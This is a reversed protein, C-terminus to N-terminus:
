DEITIIGTSEPKLIGGAINAKTSNNIGWKIYLVCDENFKQTTFTGEGSVVSYGKNANKSKDLGILDTLCNDDDDPHGTTKFPRKSIWVVYNKSKDSFELNYELKEDKNIKILPFGAQVGLYRNGDKDTLIARDSYGTENGHKEYEFDAVSGTNGDYIQKWNTLYTREFGVMPVYYRQTSSSNNKVFTAVTDSSNGNTIASTSGKVKRYYNISDTTGFCNQAFKWGNSKGGASLTFNNKVGAFETMYTGDYGWNKDRDYSSFMDYDYPDVVSIYEYAKNSWQHEVSYLRMTHMIGANMETGSSNCSRLSYATAGSGNLEQNKVISSREVAHYGWNWGNVGTYATNRESGVCGIIDKCNYYGEWKATSAGATSSEKINSITTKKINTPNAGDWSFVVTTVNTAASNTPFDTRKYWGWIKPYGYEYNLPNQKNFSFVGKSSAEPILITRQTVQTNSLGALYNAVAGDIKSVLNSEYDDMQENFTNVLADFEAKTVFASGDNAGVAAFSTINLVLVVLLSIIKKTIKSYKKIIRKMM